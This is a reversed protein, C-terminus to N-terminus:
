QGRGTSAAAAAITAATGGALVQIGGQIRTGHWTVDVDYDTYPGQPPAGRAVLARQVTDPQLAIVVAQGGAARRTIGGTVEGPDAEVRSEDSVYVRVAGDPEVLIEAHRDGTMVLIGGHHPTHDMHATRPRWPSASTMTTRRCGTSTTGLWAISVAAICRLVCKAWWPADPLSGDRRAIAPTM